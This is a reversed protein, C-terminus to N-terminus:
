QRVEVHAPAVSFEPLFHQATLEQLSRRLASPHVLEAYQRGNTRQLM